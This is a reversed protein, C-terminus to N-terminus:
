PAIALPLRAALSIWRLRRQPCSPGLRGPWFRFTMGGNTSADVSLLAERIRGVAYALRLRGLMWRRAPTVDLCFLLPFDHCFRFCLLACM